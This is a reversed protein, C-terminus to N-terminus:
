HHYYRPRGFYYHPGHHFYWSPSFYQPLHGHVGYGSRHYSPSAHYGRGQWSDANSAPPALLLVGIVMLLM